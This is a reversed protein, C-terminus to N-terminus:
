FAPYHLFYWGLEYIVAMGAVVDVIMSHKEAAGRIWSHLAFTALLMLSLIHHPYGSFLYVLLFAAIVVKAFLAAKKRQDLLSAHVRSIFGSHKAEM